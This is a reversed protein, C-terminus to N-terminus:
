NIANLKEEEEKLIKDLGEKDGSEIMAVKRRSFDTFSKIEDPSNELHFLIPKVINPKTEVIKFVKEEWFMKDEDSLLSTGVIDRLKELDNM